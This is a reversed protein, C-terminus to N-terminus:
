NSGRRESEAQGYGGGHPCAVLAPRDAFKIHVLASVDFFNHAIVDEVMRLHDDFCKLPQAGLLLLRLLLPRLAAPAAFGTSPSSWM